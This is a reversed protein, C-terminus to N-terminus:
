KELPGSQGVSKRPPPSWLTTPANSDAFIDREGIWPPIMFSRERERERERERTGLRARLVHERHPRLGALGPRARRPIVNSGSSVGGQEQTFDSLDVGVHAKDGPNGAGRQLAASVGM